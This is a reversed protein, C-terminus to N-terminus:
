NVGNVSIEKSNGHLEYILQLNTGPYIIEARNLQEFLKLLLQDTAPRASRHVRINLRRRESDPLIDSHSDFLDQMLRRGATSDVGPQMVLRVMATEARYAIMRVTDMLRKRGTALKQFKHENPLEDFLIHKDIKQLQVKLQKLENEYQEIDELLQAKRHYWKQYKKRDKEAIPHLTLEAFRANRRLLKTQISRKQRDLERWTPNVVKETGSIETTGHEVVSDIDFHQMMYRFFNEQCWRSFMRGGLVGHDLEYATSILSTQHGSATQKRVERMWIKKRGSGVLSGMEALAMSVQEGNSMQVPQEMFWAEPWEAGPFKHYCICAIRHETWMDSFFEPSYGERDFVLVFRCRYPNEDLEKESPQNPVEQLLRPIIDQRLAQLLGPDVVKEIVFFPQGLADNVWYDTTGRLCLRERSVYRRPLKTQGGHYVRIHGDVYLTGAASPDSEMWRRSLHAAWEEVGEGESLNDLKARFCRVEPIRDLGILKGFEGPSKGRLQEITPIRCLSMFGLFLLIHLERYYGKLKGLKEIGDLLGNSLLGPLACLVGGYPVDHCAEFNQRAGQSLKGISAALREDVRTCATGMGEAAAADIVTRTSKDTVEELRKPEKLRGSTIAKRLTDSRIELESAVEWRPHGETLLQQAEALMEPTFVTGGRRGRRPRMFGEIGEGRLKVLSRSVSSRAVGFTKIIEIQKCAGSDILQATVLRFLRINDSPHSYVPLTGVFYTWRDEGRNVSVFENISTAGYPILPLIIQSIIGEEKASIAVKDPFFTDSKKEPPM